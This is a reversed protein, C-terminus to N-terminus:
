PSLWIEDKKEGKKEFQQKRRNYWFILAVIARM